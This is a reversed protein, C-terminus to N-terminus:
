KRRLYCTIDLYEPSKSQEKNKIRRILLAFIYAVLLIALFWFISLWVPQEYVYLFPYPGCVIKAVNLGMSICAYLVTPLLAWLTDRKTPSYDHEFILYSVVALIPCLIHMFLNANGFLFHMALQQDTPLTMPLFIFIVVFFTVSMLCVAIYKLTSLLRPLSSQRRILTYYLYFISTILLLLNSEQTYFCFCLFGNCRITIIFGTIELIVILIHIGIVIQRKNM